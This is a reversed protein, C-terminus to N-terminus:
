ERNVTVAPSSGDASALSASTSETSGDVPTDQCALSLAPSLGLASYVLLYWFNRRSATTM